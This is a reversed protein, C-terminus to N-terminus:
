DSLPGYLLDAYAAEKALRRRLVEEKKERSEEERPIMRVMTPRGSRRKIPKMALQISRQTKEDQEKKDRINKEAREQDYREQATHESKERLIRSDIHSLKETLDEMRREIRKLMTVTDLLSGSDYGIQYHFGAIATRLEALELEGIENGFRFQGEVRYREASEVMEALQERRAEKVAAMEGLRDDGAEIKSNFMDRFRGLMEEAEECHRTLFMNHGELAQLIEILQQPRAFYIEPLPHNQRWEVPTLDELFQRYVDWQQLTEESLMIENRLMATQTQVLKIQTSVDHRQKAKADAAQKADMTAKGDCELFSRFQDRFLNFGAEKARLNEEEDRELQELRQLEELKTDIELQCMFLEREQGVL